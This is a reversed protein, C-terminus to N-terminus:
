VRYSLAQEISVHCKVQLGGKDIQKLIAHVFVEESASPDNGSLMTDDLRTKGKNVMFMALQWFELAAVRMFGYNELEQATLILNQHDWAIKWRILAQSIRSITDVKTPKYPSLWLLQLLALVVIFLDLITLKKLKVFTEEELDIRMLIDCLTALTLHESERSESAAQDAEGPSTAIFAQLPGPMDVEMEEAFLRPSSNYLITFSADLNFIGCILRIRSESVGYVEWHFPMKSHWFSNKSELLGLARCALIIEDFRNKRIEKRKSISSRRLQIQSMLFVAQLAQLTEKASFVESQRCGAIVSQFIPNSFIYDDALDIMNNALCVEDASPSLTAGILMMALLLHPVTDYPCFTGQHIIPTHPGWERFYLEILRELSQASFLTSSKGLKENPAKELHGVPLSLTFQTLSDILKNCPHVDPWPVGLMPSETDDWADLWEESEPATRNIDHNVVNQRSCLDNVTESPVFIDTEDLSSLAHEPVDEGVDQSLRATFGPHFAESITTNKPDSYNLLFSLSIKRQDPRAHSVSITGPENYQGNPAHDAGSGHQLPM